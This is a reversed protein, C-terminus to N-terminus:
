FLRVISIDTRSDENEFGPEPEFEYSYRYSLALSWLEGLATDLRFVQEARSSKSFLASTDSTFRVPDSLQWEFDSSLELAPDTRTEGAIDQVIRAGPGARLVWAREPRDLVRYGTGAGLFATFDYGSLADQNYDGNVYLTWREGAEREGRAELDLEDRGVAGDVESYAYSVASEFGWRALAREVSLGLTYDQRDSNGSDFRVGLEARGEWLESEGSAINRAVTLPAAAARSALTEAEAEARRTEGAGADAVSETAPDATADAMTGAMAGTAPIGLLACAQTGRETSIAAAADIVELPPRTLAIIRVADSFDDESQSEHAASLLASLPEPLTEQAFAAPSLLTLTIAIFLLRM